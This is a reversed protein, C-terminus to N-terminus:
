ARSTLSESRDNWLFAYAALAATPRAEDPYVSRSTEKGMFFEQIMAQAKPIRAALWCWNMFTRRTSAAKGLAKEVPGMSNRFYDICFQEFRACVPGPAPTISARSSCTSRLPPRFTSSLTHNARECQM